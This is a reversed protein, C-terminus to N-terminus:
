TSSDTVLGYNALATLLSTLAANGGKAGTVTPKTIAATGNFGITGYFRHTPNDTSNGYTQGTIAVGARDIVFFSRAATFGDDVTRFLVQNGALYFEWFKEDTAGGADVTLIAPVASQLGVYIGSPSTTQSGLWSGNFRADSTISGINAISTSGAWSSLAVDEVNSISLLTRVQAATLDTPVGTGASTARGKITSQTMNALYSNAVSGTGIDATLANLADDYAFIIRATNGMVNLVADQAAENFDSIDTSTLALIAKVQAATLDVPDGTGAAAARGKITAQAMNALKANTIADDAVTGAVVAMLTLKNTAKDFSWTASANDAFTISRASGFFNQTLVVDTM